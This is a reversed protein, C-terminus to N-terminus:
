REAALLEEYLTRLQAAIRGMAYRAAFRERGARALRLRLPENEALQRLAHALESVSGPGVLLGARGQDLVEAMGSGPVQAALCAVQRAMAELLVMGFAESRSLSPLCLVHSARYCADLVDDSVAGALLARDRLEPLNALATLRSREEGDGVLCLRADPVARLAELLVDFGKYHALRGVALVRLGTCSDLFRTAPHDPFPTKAPTPEELGLPVVRCAGGLAALQPSADLYARSTAIVAHARRLALAELRRWCAMILPSPERDPPFAVDAHWHLVVPPGGGGRLLAPWLAAGNPAHVHVVHPRFRRLAQVYLFPLAPAVPAYGGVSFAVRARHVQVCPSEGGHESGHALVLVEDGEKAQAQALQGLFREMGGTHPPHFKGLHLIRM